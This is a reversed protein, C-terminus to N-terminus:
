LRSLIKQNQEKKQKQQITKHTRSSEGDCLSKATSKKNKRKNGRQM